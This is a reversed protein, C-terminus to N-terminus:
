MGLSPLRPACVKSRTCNRPFPLGLRGSRSRWQAVGPAAVKGAGCGGRSICGVCTPPRPGKGLPPDGANVTLCLTAMEAPRRSGTVAGAKGDSGRWVRRFCSAAVHARAQRQRLRRGEGADHSGGDGRVGRHTMATRRRRGAAPGSAKSGERRCRPVPPSVHRNM